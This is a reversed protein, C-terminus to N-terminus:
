AEPTQIWRQCNDPLCEFGRLIWVVEQGRYHGTHVIELQRVIRADLDHPLLQQHRCPFPLLREMQGSWLSSRLTQRNCCFLFIMIEKRFTDGSDLFCTVGEQQLFFLECIICSVSPEYENM